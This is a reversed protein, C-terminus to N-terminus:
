FNHGKQPLAGARIKLKRRGQQSIIKQRGCSTQYLCFLAKLYKLCIENLFPRFILIFNFFPIKWNGPVACTGLLKSLGADGRLIIIAQLQSVTNRGIKEDCISCYNLEHNFNEHKRVFTEFIRFFAGTVGFAYRLLYPDFAIVGSM